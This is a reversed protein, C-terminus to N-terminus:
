QPQASPMPVVLPVVARWRASAARPRPGPSSIMMGANVMAAVTNAATYTPAVGTSTSTSGSVQVSRTSWTAARMPGRVRATIGTCM